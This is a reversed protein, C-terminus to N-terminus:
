FFYSINVVSIPHMIIRFDNSNFSSEENEAYEEYYIKLTENKRRIRYVMNLTTESSIAFSRNLRYMFGVFPIVGFEWTKDKHYLLDGASLFINSRSNSRSYLTSIDLGWFFSVNKNLKKQWEHGLRLYPAFVDATNPISDIVNLSDYSQLQLGIRLRLAKTNSKKDQFNYRVFLSTPPLEHKGILWLLDLGIEWHLITTDKDNNKLTDQGFLETFGNWILALILIIPIKHRM